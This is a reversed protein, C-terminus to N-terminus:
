KKELFKVMLGVQYNRGPMARNVIVQYSSNSFNNVAATLILNIKKFNKEYSLTIDNVLYPDLWKSNDSVTYRYGTYNMYYNLRLNNYAIGANAKYLIKPTYIQQKNLSSANAADTKTIISKNWQPRFNIEGKWKKEGARLGVSGNVGSSHLQQINQAGYVGGTQPFWVIADDLRIDFVGAEGEITLWNIMKQLAIGGSMESGKEPLLSTNGGPQWFRDNLTPLRYLMAGEARVYLANTIRYNIGVSPLFPLADGNAIGDRFAINWNLKDKRYDARAMATLQDNSEEKPYADTLALAKEATIRFDIQWYKLPYISYMGDAQFSRAKSREDLLATSDIFRIKDQVFGANVAVASKERKRNWTISYRQAEDKQQQYSNEQLMHPPIKYDSKLYWIHMAISNNEKRFKFDQAFGNQESDGNKQTVTEGYQNKYTFNNKAKRMYVRSNTAVNGNTFGTQIGIQQGGYSSIGSMIAASYGENSETESELMVAGGISGSGQLTGSGGYQVTVKDLLFSPLLSFDYLGLMASNLKIGNWMLSTHAAGMGSSTVTAVGGQGYSKIFVGAERTLQSAVDPLLIKTAATTDLLQHQITKDPYAIRSGKVNVQKLWHLSDLEQAKALPSIFLLFLLLQKKMPHIIVPVRCSGIFSTPGFGENRM